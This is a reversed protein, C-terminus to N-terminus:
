GDMRSIPNHVRPDDTSGLSAVLTLANAHGRATFALVWTKGGSCALRTKEVKLTDRGTEACAEHIAPQSGAHRWAL